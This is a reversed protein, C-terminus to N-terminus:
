DVYARVAELFWCDSCDEGGGRTLLFGFRRREGDASVVTVDQRALSNDLELPHYQAERHGILPAYPRRTLHETFEEVGDFASRFDFSAFVYLLEGDFDNPTGTQLAEIQLRVVEEPELEPSPGATVAPEPMIAPEIAACGVLVIAGAGVFLAAVRYPILGRAM